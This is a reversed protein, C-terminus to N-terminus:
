LYKEVLEILSLVTKLNEPQLDDDSFEVNFAYEISVILSVLALSDVGSEILSENEDLEVGITDKAAKIIKGKINDRDM